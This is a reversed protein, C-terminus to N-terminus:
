RGSAGDLESSDNVRDFFDELSFSELPQPESEILAVVFEEPLDTAMDEVPGVSIHEGLTQLSAVSAVRADDTIM